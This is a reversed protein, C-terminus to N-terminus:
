DLLGNPDNLELESIRDLAEQETDFCELTDPTTVRGNHYEFQLLDTSNHRIVWHEDTCDSKGNEDPTIIAM